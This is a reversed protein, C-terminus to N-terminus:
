QSAPRAAPVVTFIDSGFADDDLNSGSKLARMAAAASRDHGDVGGVPQTGFLPDNAFAEAAPNGAQVDTDAIPTPDADRGYMAIAPPASAEGASPDVTLAYQRHRQLESASWPDPKCRCEPQLTSRYSYASPLASYPKGDLSVLKSAATDTAHEYYLKAPQECSAECTNRDRQFHMMETASSVPWYYGDCLRVCVTRYVRSPNSAPTEATGAYPYLPNSRSTGSPLTSAEAAGSSFISLIQDLAGSSQVAEAAAAPTMGALCALALGIASGALRNRCRRTWQWLAVMSLAFGEDGGAGFRRGRGYTRSAFPLCNSFTHIPGQQCPALSWSLNIPKFSYSGLGHGFRVWVLRVLMAVVIVSVVM